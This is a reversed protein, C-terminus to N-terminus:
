AATKFELRRYPNVDVLDFGAMLIATLLRQGKKANTYPDVILQIGAWTPSVYSRAPTGASYAIATAIDSSTAPMAASVRFRAMPLRDRLLGGAAETGIGQANAHQYVNANVLLRVQEASMAYKGDVGLDFAALYDAWGSEDTPDTPNTLGNIIGDVAPSTNAVAAQGNIALFDRKESLVGQIDVRLAEEFGRIKALTETSYTYSSTLRVPNIEVNTLTAAAGDLEVGESRVDATTGGSLRPYTTSGVPVTPTMIGLFAMASQNFVRMAISQQNDQIASAINTVADAREEVSRISFLDLPAYGGLDEGLAAQRLEKAAGTVARGENAEEVYDALSVRGLLVARERNEPSDSAPQAADDGAEVIVAARFRSELGQYEATLADLEAANGDEPFANIKARLESQKLTIRQSERM